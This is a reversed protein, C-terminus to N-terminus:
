QKANIICKIDGGTRYIHESAYHKRSTRGDTRAM